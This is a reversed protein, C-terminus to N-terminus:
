IYFQFKKVLAVLFGFNSSLFRFKSVFNLFIKFDLIKVLKSGLFGLNQCFMSKKVYFSFM